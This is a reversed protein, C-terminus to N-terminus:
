IEIKDGYSDIIQSLYSLFKTGYAGDILRHDYGLTVYMMSRIVISDGFDTEKVVPKKQIKGISLIGVNPQNIIPIGFLGGFVGPNTITFTSGQVEELDLQKNRARVSLDELSRSLGILNLEESSKIVPVILNNDELAVAVGMNINKHHVINTDVISTNLLPFESLAKICADILLSTVTLKISHKDKYVESFTNKVKLLNTVDIDITSYVHASIRQSQIMHESIKKRVPDMAEVRSDIDNAFSVRSKKSEKNVSITDHSTRTEKSKLYNLIDLKNVRGGRGTGSIDDLESLHLGEKKAISRVLPSYFRSSVKHDKELVLEPEDSSIEISSRISENVNFLDKDKLNSKESTDEKKIKEGKEGIAGIVTGVEVTENADFLISIIKGSAPSPVESDVKDTSIELITEDKKVTDGINKKWETITGETISEGMKPMIIDTAM